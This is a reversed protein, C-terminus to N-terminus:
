LDDEPWVGRYYDNVVENASSVGEPYLPFGPLDLAEMIGTARFMQDLATSKRIIQIKPGNWTLSTRPEPGQIAADFAGVLHPHERQFHWRLAETVKEPTRGPVPKVEEDKANIHTLFAAAFGVLCYQWIYSPHVVCGDIITAYKIAFKKMIVRFWTRARAEENFEFWNEDNTPDYDTAYRDQSLPTALELVCGLAVTDLLGDETSLDPIHANPATPSTLTLTPSSM